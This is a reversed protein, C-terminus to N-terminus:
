AGTTAWMEELELELRYTGSAPRRALEAVVAAAERELAEVSERYVVVEDLARSAEAVGGFQAVIEVRRM